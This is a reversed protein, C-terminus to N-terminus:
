IAGLHDGSVREAGCTQVEFLKGAKCLEILPKIAEYDSTRKIESNNGATRQSM